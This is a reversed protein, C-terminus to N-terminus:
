SVTDNEVSLNEPTDGKEATIINTDFVNVNNWELETVFLNPFHVQRGNALHVLATLTM